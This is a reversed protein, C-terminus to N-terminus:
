PVGPYLIRPYSSLNARMAPTWKFPDSDRVTSRVGKVEARGEDDSLPGQRVVMLLPKRAGGCNASTESHIPNKSSSTSAHPMSYARSHIRIAFAANRLACTSFGAACASMCVNNLEALLYCIHYLAAVFAYKVAGADAHEVFAFSIMGTWPNRVM